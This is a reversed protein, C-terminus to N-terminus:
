VNMHKMLLLIAQDLKRKEDELLSITQKMVHGGGFAEKMTQEYNPPEILKKQLTEEICLVDDIPSPPPVSIEAKKKQLEVVMKRQSEVVKRNVSEYHRMLAYSEEEDEPLVKWGGYPNHTTRQPPLQVEWGRQTSAPKTYNCVVKPQTSPKESNVCRDATHGKGGCKHCQLCLECDHWKHVRGSRFGDCDVRTCLHKIETDEEIYLAKKNCKFATHGKEHCIKCEPCRECDYWEHPIEQKGRVCDEHKCPNHIAPTIATTTVGHSKELAKKAVKEDSNHCASKKSGKGTM